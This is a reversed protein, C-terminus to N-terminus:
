LPLSRFGRLTLEKGKDVETTEHFFRPLKDDGAGDFGM